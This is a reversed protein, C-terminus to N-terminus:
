RSQLPSRTIFWRSVTPQHAAGDDRCGVRPFASRPARNAATANAQRARQRAPRLRGPLSALRRARRPETPPITVRPARTGNSAREGALSRPIPARFARLTSLPANEPHVRGSTRWRKATPRQRSRNCASFTHYTEHTSGNGSADDSTNSSQSSCRPPKAPAKSTALAHSKISKRSRVLKARRVSCSESANHRLM